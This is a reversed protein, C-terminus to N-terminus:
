RTAETVVEGDDVADIAVRQTPSLAGRVIVDPGDEGDVQVDVARVRRSAPDYVFVAGGRVAARRRAGVRAAKRAEPKSGSKKESSFM